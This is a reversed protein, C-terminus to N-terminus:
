QPMNKFSTKGQGREKERERERQKRDVMLHTAKEIM